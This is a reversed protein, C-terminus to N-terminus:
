PRSSIEDDKIGRCNRALTLPAQPVTKLSRVRNEISKGVSDFELEWFWIVGGESNPSRTTNVETADASNAPKIAARAVKTTSFSPPTFPPIRAAVGVVIIGANIPILLM